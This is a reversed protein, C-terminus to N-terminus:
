YEWKALSFVSACFVYSTLPLALLQVLESNMRLGVSYQRKRFICNPQVIQHLDSWLFLHM